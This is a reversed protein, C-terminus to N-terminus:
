SIGRAHSYAFALPSWILIFLIILITMEFITKIIPEGDFAMTDYGCLHHNAAADELKQSTNQHLSKLFSHFRNFFADNQQNESIVSYFIQTSSFSQFQRYINEWVRFAPVQILAIEKQQSRLTNMEHQCWTNIADDDLIIIKEYRLLDLNHSLTSITKATKRTPWTSSIVM